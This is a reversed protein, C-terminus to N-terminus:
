TRRGQSGPKKGDDRAAAEVGNQRAKERAAGAAADSVDEMEEGAAASAARTGANASGSTPPTGGSRAADMDGRGASAGANANTGANAGARAMNQTLAQADRQMTEQQKLMAQQAKQAEEASAKMFEDALAKATRSTEPVHREACRSLEAQVEASIRALNDKYSRLREGTPQAQAAAASLLGAPKDAAVMDRGLRTSEEVFSQTLNLNLESIKQFSQLLTKAMDDLFSFQANVHAETAPQLRENFTTM